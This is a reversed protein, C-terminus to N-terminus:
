AYTNQEETISRHKADTEKRMDGEGQVDTHMQFTLASIQFHTIDNKKKEGNVRSLNVAYFRKRRMGSFWGRFLGDANWCFAGWFVAAAVAATAATHSFFM